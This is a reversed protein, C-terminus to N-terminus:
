LLGDPLEVVLRQAELDVLLVVEEIAPILIQRSRTGADQVVYVDNSGTHIIEVVKGLHEGSETLVDLDLIQHEFYEDEDLPIAEEFPVQVVNGRLAQATPRDSCGQIRLLARGKHLRYGELMWPVPEEDEPGLFVRELKGFRDPEDTLLEVKLEGRMGHAGVILGVALFRPEPAREQEGSGQLNEAIERRAAHIM